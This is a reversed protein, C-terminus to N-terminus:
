NNKEKHNILNGPIESSKDQHFVPKETTPKITKSYNVPLKFVTKRGPIGSSDPFEPSKIKYFNKDTPRSMVFELTHIASKPDNGSIDMLRKLSMFEARSRMVIGHQESLYEKWFIWTAKFEDNDLLPSHVKISKVPTIFADVDHVSKLVNKWSKNLVMTKKYFVTSKPLIELLEEIQTKLNLLDNQLIDWSQKM